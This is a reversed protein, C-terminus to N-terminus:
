PGESNSLFLCGGVPWGIRPGGKSGKRMRPYIGARSIWCSQCCCCCCYYGTASRRTNANRPGRPHFTRNGSPRPDYACGTSGACRNRQGCPVACRRHIANPLTLWTPASRRLCGSGAASRQRAPACSCGRRGCWGWGSRPISRWSDEPLRSDREQGTSRRHFAPDPRTPAGWRRPIWRNGCAWFRTRPCESAVAFGSACKRPQSPSPAGASGARVRPGATASGEFAWCCSASSAPSAPCSWPTSTRGAGDPRIGAWWRCRDSDGHLDKAMWPWHQWKEEPEALWYIVFEM